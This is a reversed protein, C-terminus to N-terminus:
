GLDLLRGVAVLLLDLGAAALDDADVGQPEVLRGSAARRQLHRRPELLVLDLPQLGEAGLAVRLRGRARELGQGAGGGAGLVKERADQRAHFGPSGEPLNAASEPFRPSFM